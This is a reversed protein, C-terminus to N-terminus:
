TEEDKNEDEEWLPRPHVAAIPAPLGALRRSLAPLQLRQPPQTRMTTIATSSATM